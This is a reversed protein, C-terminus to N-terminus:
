ELGICYCQDHGQIMRGPKDGRYGVTAGPKNTVATIIEIHRLQLAYVQKDQPDPAGHEHDRFGAPYATALPWPSSTLVHLASGGLYRGPCHMIKPFVNGAPTVTCSWSDSRTMKVTTSRHRKLFLSCKLHGVLM